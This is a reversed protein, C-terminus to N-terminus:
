PAQLVDAPIPQWEGGPPQWFLAMSFAGGHQFYRVRLPQPGARLAVRNVLTRAAHPELDSFLTIGDLTVDGGDDSLFAFGYEGEAPVNLTALWEISVPREPVAYLTLDQAWGESTIPGSWDATAYYRVKVGQGPAATYARGEPEGKVAGHQELFTQMLMHVQMVDVGEPVTPQPLPSPTPPAPTHPELADAASPAQEAPVAELERLYADRALEWREVNESRFGRSIKEFQWQMWIPFEELSVAPGRDRLTHPHATWEYFTRWERYAAFCAAGALVLLAAITAAIHKLPGFRLLRAQDVGVAAFYLMPPFLAIGRATHPAQTTLVQTMLFPALLMMWWWFHRGFQIMGAILGVIMAYGVMPELLPEGPPSYRRTNNIPLFPARLARWTGKSILEGRTQYGDHPMNVHLASVTRMRSEFHSFRERIVRLQPLFLTLALIAGLIYVGLVHWPRPQNRDAWVQRAVWGSVPLTLAWLVVTGVAAYALVVSLPKAHYILWVPLLVFAPGALLLWILAWCTMRLTPTPWSRLHAVGWQVLGGLGAGLALAAGILMWARADTLDPVPLFPPYEIMRLPPYVYIVIGAVLGLLAPLGLYLWLLTWRSSPAPANEDRRLTWVLPYLLYLSVFSVMLLLIIARGSFYGYLGWAAGVGTLVVNLLWPKRGEMARVVGSVAMLTALCIHVNEWGSRSFNLYTPNISLLLVGALAAPRSVSRRMLYYFPLLAIVSILASNFRLAFLDDLDATAQKWEERIARREDPSAARQLRQVFPRPDDGLLRVTLASLHQSFAPQPKWDLDFLGPKGSWNIEWIERLNDCEDCSLNAPFVNLYSFRIACSFVLLVLLAWENVVFAAIRRRWSGSWQAWLRVTM